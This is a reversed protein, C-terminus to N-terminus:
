KKKAAVEPKGPVPPHDPMFRKYYIQQGISITNSLTWYLALGAAYNYLTFLMMFPMMVMMMKQMQQQQPDASTPTLKM